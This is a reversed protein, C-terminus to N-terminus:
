GPRRRGEPRYELATVCHEERNKRMIHGIWNWRRRRMEDSTRNVGTTEQIHQHSITRQWRIRLKTSQIAQRGRLRAPRCGFTAKLLEFKLVYYQLCYLVEYTTKSTGLVTLCQDFHANNGSGTVCQFLSSSFPKFHEGRNYVYTFM